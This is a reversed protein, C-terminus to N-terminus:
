GRPVFLRRLYRRSRSGEADPDLDFVAQRYRAMTPNPRMAPLALPVVSGLAWLLPTASVWIFGVLLALLCFLAAGPQPGPDELALWGLAYFEALCLLGALLNSALLYAIVAYQRWEGRRLARLECETQEIQQRTPTAGDAYLADVIERSRAARVYVERLRARHTTLEVAAVLIIVPAVAAVTTAYSESMRM